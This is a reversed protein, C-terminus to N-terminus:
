ESWFREAAIGYRGATASPPPLTLTARACAARRSRGHRNRDSERSRRSRPRQRHSAAGQQRGRRTRLALRHRDRRLLPGDPHPPEASDGPEIFQPLVTAFIAGAKPELLHQARGPPFRKGRLASTRSYRLECVNSPIAPFHQCADPAGSLRPIRRRRAQIGHFRCGLERAVGCGWNRLSGSM